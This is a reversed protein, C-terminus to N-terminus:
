TMRTKQKQKKLNSLQLLHILVKFTETGFLTM